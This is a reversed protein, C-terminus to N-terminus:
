GKMYRRTQQLIDRLKKNNEYVPYRSMYYDIGGQLISKESLDYIEDLSVKEGLEPFANLIFKIMEGKERKIDSVGLCQLEQNNQCFCEYELLPYIFYVLDSENCSFNQEGAFLLSDIFSKHNIENLAVTLTGRGSDIVIIIIKWIDQIANQLYKRLRLYEIGRMRNQNEEALEEDRRGSLKIYSEVRGSLPMNHSNNRNRIKEFLREIEPELSLQLGSENYNAYEGKMKDALDNMVSDFDASEGHFQYGFNYEEVMKNWESQRIGVGILFKNGIMLSTLYAELSYLYQAIYSEEKISETDAAFKSILDESIAKSHCLLEYYSVIGKVSFPKLFAYPVITIKELKDYVYIRIMNQEVFSMRKTLEKDSDSNIFYLYVHMGYYRQIDTTIEEAVGKNIFENIIGAEETDFEIECYPLHSVYPQGLIYLSNIISSSVKKWRNEDVFQKVEIDINFESDIKVADKNDAFVKVTINEEACNCQKVLFACVDELARGHLRIDDVVLITEKYLEEKLLAVSLNTVIKGKKKVSGDYLYDVIEEFELFVDLFRRVMLVKVDQEAEMVEVVFHLFSLFTAKGMDSILLDIKNQITQKM